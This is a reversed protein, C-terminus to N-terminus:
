EGRYMREMYRSGLSAPLSDVQELEWDNINYGFAEMYDTLLPKFFAVDEEATFWRRWNGYQKSRSVRQVNEHVEAKPDIRFGLYQELTRNRGDILSEYDVIFIADRFENLLEIVADYTRGINDPTFSIRFLKHFPVSAPDQEKQRTLALAREYRDPKPNHDKFWNYFFTSLLRDRPDRHIWIVKDYMPIIEPFRHPSLSHFIMKTVVNGPHQTFARHAEVDQGGEMGGPEFYVQCQDLGDAIRYTLISTGSKALGLVLIKLGNEATAATSEPETSPGWFAKLKEVLRM